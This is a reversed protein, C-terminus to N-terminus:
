KIIPKPNTIQSENMHSFSQISNNTENGNEDETESRNSLWEEVNETDKLRGFDPQQLRKNEHSDIDRFNEIETEDEQTAYETNPTSEFDTSIDLERKSKGSKFENLATERQSQLRDGHITTVKYGKQILDIM